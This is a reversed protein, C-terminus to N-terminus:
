DRRPRLLDYHDGSVPGLPEWLLAVEWGDHALQRPPLLAAQVQAAAELDRELAQREAPSLCGLCVTVLPDAALRDPEVTELCVACRGWTGGDLRELASDVQRLLEVLQSERVTVALHALREPRELLEDRVAELTTMTARGAGPPPPRDPRRPLCQAPPGGPADRAGLPRERGGSRRAPRRRPRAGARPPRRPRGRASSLGGALGR